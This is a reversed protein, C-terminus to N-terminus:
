WPAAAYRRARAPLLVAQASRRSAEGGANPVRNSSVTSIRRLGEAIATRVVGENAKRIRIQGVFADGVTATYSTKLFDEVVVDGAPLRTLEWRTTMVVTRDFAATPPEYGLVRVQLEFGDNTADDVRRFLGSREIAARLASEMEAKAVITYKQEMRPEGVVVVRVAGDYTKDLKVASPIM